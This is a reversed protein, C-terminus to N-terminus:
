AGFNDILSTNLVTVIQLLIRFEAIPQRYSIRELVFSENLIVQM